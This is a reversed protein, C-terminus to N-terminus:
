GVQATIHAPSDLLKGCNSASSPNLLWQKRKFIRREQIIDIPDLAIQPDLTKIQIRQELPDDFWKWIPHSRRATGSGVARPRIAIRESRQQNCLSERAIPTFPFFRHSL